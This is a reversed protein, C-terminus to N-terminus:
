WSRFWENVEVRVGDEGGYRETDDCYDEFVTHTAMPAFLDGDRWVARATATWEYEPHEIIIHWAQADAPIGYRRGVQRGEVCAGRVTVVFSEGDMPLYHRILHHLAVRNGDEITGTNLNM